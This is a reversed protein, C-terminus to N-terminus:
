PLSHEPDLYHGLNYLATDTSLAVPSCEKFHHIKVNTLNLSVHLFCLANLSWFKYLSTWTRRGSLLRGGKEKMQFTNPLQWCNQRALMGCALYARLIFCLPIMHATQQDKIIGGTWDGRSSWKHKWHTYYCGKILVHHASAKLIHLWMLVRMLLETKLFSWHRSPFHPRLHATWCRVLLSDQPCLSKGWFGETASVAVVNPENQKWKGRLQSGPLDEQWDISGASAM